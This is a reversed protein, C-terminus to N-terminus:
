VLPETAKLSSLSLTLPKDPVIYRNVLCCSNVDGFLTIKIGVVTLDARSMLLNCIANITVTKIRFYGVSVYESRLGIFKPKHFCFRVFGM